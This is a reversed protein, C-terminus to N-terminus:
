ALMDWNCRFECLGRTTMPPDCGGARLNEGGQDQVARSVMCTGLGRLVSTRSSCLEQGSIWPNM